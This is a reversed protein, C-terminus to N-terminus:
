KLSALVQRAARQGSTLAADVTGGLGQSATAEGAFFLTREIPTALAAPAHIAGPTLYSYAGRAFPDSQWDAVHATLLMRRLRAATFGTIRALSQLAADLIQRQPRLALNAAAPGGAWATLVDGRVPWYSWWTPFATGLAHMFSLQTLRQGRPASPLQRTEWFPERFRAIIKVVQGM